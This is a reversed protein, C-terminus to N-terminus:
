PCTDDLTSVIKNTVIDIGKTNDVETAVGSSSVSVAKSTNAVVGVGSSSVEIAKAANAVVGVGSAGVEVAKAANAVVALGNVDMSIAGSGNLVVQLGDADTTLGSNSKVKVRLGDDDTIIGSDVKVPQFIIPCWYGAVLDLHPWLGQVFRIPIKNFGEDPTIRPICTSLAPKDLPDGQVFTNVTIERGLVVDGIKATFTTANVATVTVFFVIGAGEINTIDNFIQEIDIEQTIINNVTVNTIDTTTKLGTVTNQLGKLDFVGTILQEAFKDLVRAKEEDLLVPNTLPATVTVFIEDRKAMKDLRRRM